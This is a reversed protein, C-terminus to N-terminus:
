DELVPESVFILFQKGIDTVKVTPKVGDGGGTTVIDAGDIDDFGSVTPSIKVLIRSNLDNCLLLFEERGIEKSGDFENFTSYIEEYSRADRIESESARMFELLLLHPVSLENVFRIFLTQLGEKIDANTASNLVANKLHKVKKVHHSRIAADSAQLLLTIFAANDRLDEFRVQQRQELAYLATAIEEMWEERRKVLPPALVVSFLESTANGIIPISGVGAKIISHLHDGSGSKPLSYRKVNEM